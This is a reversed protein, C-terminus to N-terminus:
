FTSTTTWICYIKKEGNILYNINDLLIKYASKCIWLDIRMKIILKEKIKNEHIYYNSVQNLGNSKKDNRWM